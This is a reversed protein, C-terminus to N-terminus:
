FSGYIIPSGLTIKGNSLEVHLNVVSGFLNKKYKIKSSYAYISTGNDHTETKVVKANFDKLIQAVTYDNEVVCSEGRLNYCFVYEPKQITKVGNLTSYDFFYVEFSSAYDSFLPKSRQCFFMAMVCFICLIFVFSKKLM